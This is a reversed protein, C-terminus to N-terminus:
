CSSPASRRLMNSIKDKVLLRLRKLQQIESHHRAGKYADIMRDLHRHRRQLQELHAKMDLRRSRQRVCTVSNIWNFEKHSDSLNKKDFSRAMVLM